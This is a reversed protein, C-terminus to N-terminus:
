PNARKALQCAFPCKEPGGCMLQCMPKGFLNALELLHRGSPFREGREWDSVTSVSVGLELAVRKIPWKRAMRLSRLQRGLVRELRDVLDRDVGSKM